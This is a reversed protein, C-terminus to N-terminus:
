AGPSPPRTSSRWIWCRSVRQACASGVNGSFFGILVVLGAIMPVLARADSWGNQGAEILGYTMIVLGSTSAIMGIPDLGPREPARSEPVLAFTAILGVLAVPVNILFM